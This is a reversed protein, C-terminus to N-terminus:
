SPFFAKGNTRGASADPEVLSAAFSNDRQIPAMDPALDGIMVDPDPSRGFDAM